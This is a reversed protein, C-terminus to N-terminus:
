LSPTPTEETGSEEERRLHERLEELRRRYGDADGYEFFRVYYRHPDTTRLAHKIPCWYQETRGAIERVLSVVGNAYSCYLCNLAEIRNLYGLRARDFVVHDSRRVRPIGYARFCVQQYLNVWLDLLVIPVILSYILPATWMSGISSEALFRGIGTRLRRHEASIGEEFEVFRERLRWGLAERRKEIEGELESQLRLIEEVLDQMRGSMPTERRAARDM